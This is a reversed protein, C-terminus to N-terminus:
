EPDFFPIAIDNHFICLMVFHDLQKISSVYFAALMFLRYSINSSTINYSKSLLQVENKAPLCLVDKLGLAGYSMLSFRRQKIWHRFKPCYDKSLPNSKLVNIIKEGKQRTVTKSKSPETGCYQTECFKKFLARQQEM